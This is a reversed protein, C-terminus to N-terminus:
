RTRSDRDVAAEARRLRPDVPRLDRGCQPAREPRDREAGVHRHPRIRDAQRRRGPRLRHREHLGRGQVPDPALYPQGLAPPRGQGRRAIRDLCERGGGDGAVQPQRQAPRDHQAVPLAAGPDPEPQGAQVPRVVARSRVPCQVQDPRGPATRRIAEDGVAREDDRGTREGAALQGGAPDGPQGRRPDRRYRGALEPRGRPPDSLRHPVQGARGIEAPELGAAAQGSGERADRGPEHDGPRQEQDAQELQDQEGPAASVSVARVSALWRSSSDASSAARPAPRQCSALSASASASSTAAAPVPAPRSTPPRRAPTSAREPWSRAAPRRTLPVGACTHNVIAATRSSHVPTMTHGASRGTEGPAALARLPRAATTEAAARAPPSM